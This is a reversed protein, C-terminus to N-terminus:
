PCSVESPQWVSTGDAKLCRKVKGSERLRSLALYALSKSMGLSDAIENRTKPGENILLTRIRLDREISEEPRPRGRRPREMDAM